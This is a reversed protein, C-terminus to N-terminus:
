ILHTKDHMNYYGVNYHKNLKDPEQEIAKEEVRHVYTM